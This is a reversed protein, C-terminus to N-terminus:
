KKFLRLAGLQEMFNNELIVEFGEFRIYLNNEIALYICEQLAEDYCEQYDLCEIVESWKSLKDNINGTFVPQLLIRKDNYKIYKYNVENTYEIEM